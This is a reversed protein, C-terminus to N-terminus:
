KASKPPLAHCIVTRASELREHESLSDKRSVYEALKLAAELEQIRAKLSALETVKILTYTGRREEPATESNPQSRDTM